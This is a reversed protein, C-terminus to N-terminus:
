SPIQTAIFQTAPQISDQAYSLHAASIIFADQCVGDGQNCFIKTKGADINQFKQAQLPDGFTVAAAIKNGNAGLNILAGHVQQAGQSYGSLVIKTDPCSTFLQNALKNMQVAGQAQAPTISGTATGAFDAPYDIGQIAVDNNYQKKLASALAPGVTSGMNGPETTGRAFLLTVKKCAGGDTVDNSTSSGGLGGLGSTLSGLDQPVRKAPSHRRQKRSRKGGFGGLGGAASSSSPAAAAEETTPTGLGVRTLKM